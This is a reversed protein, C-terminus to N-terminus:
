VESRLSTRLGHADLATIWKAKAQAPGDGPLLCGETGPVWLKGIDSERCFASKLRQNEVQSRWTMRSATNIQLLHLFFATPCTLVIVLQNGRKWNYFHGEQRSTKGLSKAKPPEGATVPWMCPVTFPSRLWPFGCRDQLNTESPNLVQEKARYAARPVAQGPTIM